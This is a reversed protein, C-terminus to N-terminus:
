FLWVNNKVGLGVHATAKFFMGEDKATDVEEDTVSATHQPTEDTDMADMGADSDAPIKVDTDVKVITERSEDSFNKGINEDSVTIKETCNENNEDFKLTEEKEIECQDSHKVEKLETEGSMGYKQESAVTNTISGNEETEAAGNLSEEIEPMEEEEATKKSRRSKRKPKQDEKEEDDADGGRSKRKPKQEEKEEDDADGGRSKRKPKQEEKEEDDADGGRNKRSRRSSRKSKKERVEDDSHENEVCHRKSDSVTSVESSRKLSM